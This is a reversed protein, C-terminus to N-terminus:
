RHEQGLVGNPGGAAAAGAVPWRAVLSRAPAARARWLEPTCRMAPPLAAVADATDAAGHVTRLAELAVRCEGATRLIGVLPRPRARARLEILAGAGGLGLPTAWVAGTASLRSCWGDVEHATLRAHDHKEPQDTM